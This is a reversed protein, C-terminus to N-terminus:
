TPTHLHANTPLNLPTKTKSRAPKHSSQQKPNISFHNAVLWSTPSKTNLPPNKPQASKASPLLYPDAPLMAQIRGRAFSYTSYM